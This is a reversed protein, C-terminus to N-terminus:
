RIAVCNVWSEPLKSNMALGISNRVTMESVPFSLNDRGGNTQARQNTEGINLRVEGQEFEVRRAGITMHDGSPLM